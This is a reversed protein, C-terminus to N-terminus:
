KLWKEFWALMEKRMEPTYTHGVEPYRVSRFKESVGLAKYVAAVKEEIVKIGDAPSGNDLEGTLFLAPRPAILSIVAETDFHKLLGFVFYYLGHARLNGHHILNEYRTLCAVGVVAAIRDDLAALWWARTSGMSIGTTGIRKADVEPRTFLYDLACRDDRVFMGWLTRGHWLHFKLQDSQQERLLDYNERPGAPGQGRRDGYWAADPAFVVWGRKIFAAALPEEGGNTNPQLLHRHDYSTSHLWLIASAPKKVNEPVLLLASMTDGLGNPLRLRELTFGPHIEVSVLHAKPTPRPPQDGLSEEVKKRIEPRLKAWAAADKPLLMAPVSLTRFYEPVKADLAAETAKYAAAAELGSSPAPRTTPAALYLQRRIVDTVADGLREYGAPTYHTGDKLLLTEVGGDRVIRNLDDVPVNLKKMVGIAAANYKQVDADFRDFAAKRGAHRDDLIPTTTAFVLHPTTKRIREIIAALNAEYKDLPVQHVKMTKDFKLDHLGCNIHVFTPRTRTLLNDLEKLTNATDAGNASVSIVEAEGALKKAVGPGYGLRISDGLLLVRPLEPKAAKPQATSICPTLVLFVVAFFRHM